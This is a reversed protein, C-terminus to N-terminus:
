AAKSRTPGSNISTGTAEDMGGSTRRNSERREAGEVLAAMACWSQHLALVSEAGCNINAGQPTVGDRCRGSALDGIMVGRDNAGFFWQWARMATAQWSSNGTIRWAVSAAEIMAQAELPQQDFPLQV